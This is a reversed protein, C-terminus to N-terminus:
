QAGNRNSYISLHKKKKSIQQAFEGCSCQLVFSRSQVHKSFVFVLIRKFMSYPMSELKANILVFSQDRLKQEAIYYIKTCLNAFRKRKTKLISQVKQLFSFFFFSRRRDCNDSCDYSDFAMIAPNHAVLSECNWFLHQKRAYVRFVVFFLFDVTEKRAITEPKCM